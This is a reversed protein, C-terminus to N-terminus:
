PVAQCYRKAVTKGYGERSLDVGYPAPLPPEDRGPPRGGHSLPQRDFQQPRQRHRDPVTLHHDATSATAVHQDAEHQVGTMRQFRALQQVGDPLAIRRRARRVAQLRVDTIQAPLETPVPEQGFCPRIAEVHAAHRDVCHLELPLHGGGLDGEVLRTRALRDPEHTRRQGPPSSGYQDIHDIMRPPLGLDGPQRLQVPSGPRQQELRQQRHSPVVLHHDGTFQGDGLM